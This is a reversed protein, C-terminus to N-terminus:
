LTIADHNNRNIKCDKLLVLLYCVNASSNRLHAIAALSVIATVPEDPPNPMLSKNMCTGFECRSQGVLM